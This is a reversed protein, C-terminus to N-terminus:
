AIMRRDLAVGHRGLFDDVSSDLESSRRAFGGCHFGHEITWNTLSRGLAARHSWDVDDDLSTAGRMASVGVARRGDELGAAIGALTGGTGVPCVVADYGVDIERLMEACGRFAHVTSGGEPVLYFVGFRRRLDAVVDEATKRRYTARDVYHLRM